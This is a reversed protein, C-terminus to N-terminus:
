PTAPEAKGADLAFGARQLSSAAHMKGFLTPPSRWAGIHECPRACSCACACVYLSAHKSAACACAHVQTRQFCMCDRVFAGCPAHVCCARVCECRRHAHMDCACFCVCTCACMGVCVHVGSSIHPCQLRAPPAKHTWSSAPAARPSGPLASIGEGKWAIDSRHTGGCKYVEGRSPM